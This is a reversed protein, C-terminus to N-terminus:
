WSWTVVTGNLVNWTWLPLTLTRWLWYVNSGKGAWDFSNFCAADNDARHLCGRRMQMLSVLLCGELVSCHRFNTLWEWTRDTQISAVREGLCLISESRGSHFLLTRARVFVVQTIRNAIVIVMSTPWELCLSHHSCAETALVSWPFKVLSKYWFLQNLSWSRARISM